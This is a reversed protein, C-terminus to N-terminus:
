IPGGTEFFYTTAQWSVPQYKVSATLKAAGAYGIGSAFQLTKSTVSSPGWASPWPFPWSLQNGPVTFSPVSSVPKDEYDVNMDFNITAGGTATFVPRSGSFRKQAGPKGFYSFAQKATAVIPAGNDNSGTEAQYLTGDNAGFFLRDSMFEWVNANIGVYRCWANTVTNMVYQYASQDPIAPVNVILLNGLPYVQLQWGFNAYYSQVDNNVANVIKYSIAINDAERDIQLAKSLPIVGDRGIIGVDTGIRTWFRDGVPAGVRGRGALAWTSANTPDYGTYSFVEGESTIFITYNQIGYASAISFGFVAALYGGQKALSSLDISSATGSISNLPLYWARLSANEVFWMRSNIADCNRLLRPDVGQISPTYTYTGVSTANMGPNSGMTYTFTTSTLVNIAAATVNYASPAAGSVTVTVSAGNVLGHPALTTVTATTGSYTISSIAAGAGNGVKLWTTGDYLLPYDAGNVAYIFHGGPTGFNVYQFRSNALGTVGTSIAAGQNTCQWVSGSAIAFLQNVTGGRFAMITEVSGSMGTAWAQYGNRTVVDTTRPFFNDLILADTEPMEAVANLANLGGVPAGVTASTSVRQRKAQDAKM